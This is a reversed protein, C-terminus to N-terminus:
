RMILYGKLIEMRKIYIQVNNYPSVEKVSSTATLMSGILLSLFVALGHVKSQTFFYTISGVRCYNPSM